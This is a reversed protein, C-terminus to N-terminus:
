RRCLKVLHEMRFITSHKDLVPRELTIFALPGQTDYVFGTAGHWEMAVARFEHPTEPHNIRETLNIMVRDGSNIPQM